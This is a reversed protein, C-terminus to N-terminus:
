LYPPACTENKGEFDQVFALEDLMSNLMLEPTLQKELIFHYSLGLEPFWLIELFKTM